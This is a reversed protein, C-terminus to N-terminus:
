SARIHILKKKIKTRLIASTESVGISGLLLVAGLIQQGSMKEGILMVSVLLSTLPDLYSLVAISQTDMGKMGTFFLYFGIGGHLVGLVIILLMTKMDVTSLNLGNGFVVFPLLIFFAVGLQLLTSLLGDLGEIFKNILTVSAYLCAATLGFCIGKFHNGQADVTGNLLILALGLVSFGVCFMKKKSLKVKLIWPSLITVLVPAFYYSLAANAITTEKYAKFLFIWNASLGMGALLLLRGNKKITSVSVSHKKVILVLLLTLSGILSLCLAIVDSPLAINKIFIGVVGFIMM